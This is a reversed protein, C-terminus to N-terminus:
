KTEKIMIQYTNDNSKLSTYEKPFSLILNNHTDKTITIGNLRKSLSFMKSEIDKYETYKLYTFGSLVGFCIGLAIFAGFIVFGFIKLKKTTIEFDSSIEKLKKHSDAILTESKENFDKTNELERNYFDKLLDGLSKLNASFSSKLNEDYFRIREQMAIM